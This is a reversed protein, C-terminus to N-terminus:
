TRMPGILLPVRIPLTAKRVMLKKVGGRAAYEWKDGPSYKAVDGLYAM